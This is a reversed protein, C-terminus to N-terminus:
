ERMAEARADEGDEIGEEIREEVEDLVRDLRDLAEDSADDDARDRVPPAPPAPAAPEAPSAVEPAADPAPQVRGSSSGPPTAPQALVATSALLISLLALAWSRAPGRGPIQVARHSVLRRM